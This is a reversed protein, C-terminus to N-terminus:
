FKGFLFVDYMKILNDNCLLILLFPFNCVSEFNEVNISGIGIKHTITVIAMTAPITMLMAQIKM